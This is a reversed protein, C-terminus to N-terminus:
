ATVEEAAPPYALESYFALSLTIDCWTGDMHQWSRLQEEFKYNTPDSPTADLFAAWAAVANRTDAQHLSGHLAGDNRIEWRMQPLNHNLLQLLAM